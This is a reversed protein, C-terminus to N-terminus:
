KLSGTCYLSFFSFSRLRRSVLFTSNYNYTKTEMRNELDLFLLLQGEVKGLLFILFHLVPDMITLSFLLSPDTTTSISHLSALGIELLQRQLFILSPSLLSDQLFLSFQDLFQLSLDNSKIDMYFVVAEM